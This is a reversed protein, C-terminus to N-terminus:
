GNLDGSMTLGEGVVINDILGIGNIEIAGAIVFPPIAERLPLLTLAHRVAVYATTALHERDIVNSVIRELETPSHNGKYWAERALTLGRYLSTAAVRDESTLRVNRSSLALGDTDRVTDITTMTLPIELDAVIQAIVRIQQWDKQGFYARHPRSLGFLKAVITAVGAFHGPRRAGELDLAIPGPHVLAVGGKPYIDAEDPVFAVDVGAAEFAALDATEDRPYTSFDKPQGFQARNVFLTAVVSRDCARAVDLLALHGRHLAGMTPVIGVPKALNLRADRVEARTRAVIM